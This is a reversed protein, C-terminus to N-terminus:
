KYIHTLRKPVKLKSGSLSQSAMAVKPAQSAAAAQTAGRAAMQIQTHLVVQQGMVQFVM